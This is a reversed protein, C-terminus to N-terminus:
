RVREPLSGAGMPAHVLARLEALAAQPNEHQFVNRGVCVGAAGVELAAEVTTLLEKWEARDGGAVVVPVFCGQVVTAFSEPSGTYPVKVIDSGLEAAVRAAHAIRHPEDAPDVGWVYAMTLLPLGWRSCAASVEALDVLMNLEEAVGFTVQVSVADAGVRLADEAAGIVAKVHGRGSLATGASLHMILGTRRTLEAPIQALAGRHAVVGDPAGALLRHLTPKLPTLGHIPGM